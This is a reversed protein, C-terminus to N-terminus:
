GEACSCRISQISVNLHRLNLVCLSCVSNPTEGNEELEKLDTSNQAVYTFSAVIHVSVNRAPLDKFAKLIDRGKKLVFSTM